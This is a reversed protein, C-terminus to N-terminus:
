EKAAMFCAVSARDGEHDMYCFEVQDGVVEGFLAADKGSIMLRSSDHNLVGVIEEKAGKPSMAHGHFARGEQTEIVLSWADAPNGISPDEYEPHHENADGLRISAHMDGTIKWTGVLDPTEAALAMAGGFAAATLGTALTALLRTFEMTMDELIEPNGL